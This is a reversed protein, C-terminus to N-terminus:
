KQRMLTPLQGSLGMASRMLTRKLPGIRNVVALGLDRAARVPAIDNAFLRNLADTVGGMLLNDARRWRQYGDLVNPSAPDLGLGVADAVLETLAAVDRLGLNLGQGAIPHIAHAVDGILALRGKVYADAFQLGLPYSFRPGVLELGGLFDGVRRSIEAVFREDSLKLYDGALHAAETWVLSSRYGGALPLIAFPGPPLFREHAIGAHHTAHAITAVIATQDYRWGKVGIGAAQRLVSGRGEASVFLRAHIRTGDACVVYAADADQDFGVVDTPAMVTMRDGLAAVEAAIARRLHRNEVMFGLPDTGLEAHDYHLFMLSDGDSVRIERIPEAEAGIHRWLGIADLLRQGTLAIASARGDFTPAIGAEPPLKDILVVGVGHRALAVALAGGVLGGGVIAVDHVRYSAQIM